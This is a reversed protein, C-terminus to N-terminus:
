WPRASTTWPRRSAEPTRTSPQGHQHHLQAQTPWSERALSRHASPVSSATRWLPAKTSSPTSRRASTASGYTSEHLSPCSRHRHIGQRLNKAQLLVNQGHDAPRQHRWVPLPRDGGHVYNFRVPITTRTQPRSLQHTHDGCIECLKPVEDINTLREAQVGGYIILPKLKTSPAHWLKKHLWILRMNFDRSLYAREKLEKLTTKLGQLTVM